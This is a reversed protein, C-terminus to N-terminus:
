PMFSVTNVRIVSSDIIVERFSLKGSPDKKTSKGSALIKNYGPKTMEESVHMHGFCLIEVKNKIISHLKSADNLKMAVRNIANWISTKRLFPHHHLCLAIHSKSSAMDSLIKQLKALQAPGIEGKALQFLKGAVGIGSDLGIFLTDRTEVMRPYMPNLDPHATSASHDGLLELLIFKNFLNYSYEEFEKFDVGTTSYDHNGPVILVKEKFQQILPRLLDRANAYQDEDAHEDSGDNRSALGHVIDGSIVIAFNDRDENGYTKIIFDVLAKGNINEHSDEHNIHLDSVHIFKTM